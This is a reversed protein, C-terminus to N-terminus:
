NGDFDGFTWKLIHGNLKAKAGIGLPFNPSVHGFSQSLYVSCPIRNKCENLVSLLASNEEGFNGFVIGALQHLKGTLLFHTLTRLIRGPNEGVDELFLFANELSEPFYRSGLLNSLVSMCGGFLWTGEKPSPKEFLTKLELTGRAKKHDKFIEFLQELDKESNLGWLSSGPMPAHLSKWSLKTFLASQLATIDSFGVLLKEPSRQISAWDLDELLGSAGYGGRTCLIIGPEDASLARELERLRESHEAALLEFSIQPKPKTYSCEFGKTKLTKLAKSLLEPKSSSSPSILQIKVKAM